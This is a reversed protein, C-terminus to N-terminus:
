MGNTYFGGMYLVFQGILIFILSLGFKHTGTRKQGDLAAASTIAVVAFFLEVWQPWAMHFQDM